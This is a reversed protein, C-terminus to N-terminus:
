PSDRNAFDALDFNRAFADALSARTLPEVPPLRGLRKAEGLRCIIAESDPQAGGVFAIGLLPIARRRIAELSLLSHNITGLATAACLILPARWRAFLDIFLTDDNLPVLLGGAGEVVLPEKTQPLTLGAPDIRVGEEAAARHPSAALALRYAEALVPRGSLRAVSESDSEGELGAQVPKWYVGGLAGTLAAAFVTKGIGTGTGTVIFRPGTM